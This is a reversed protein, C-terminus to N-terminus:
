NMSSIYSAVADIHEDTMNFAVDRMIGNIDNSREGTKFKKLQTILYEKHQWKLSPFNALKNGIGEIGHCGACGVVKDESKGYLYIKKGLEIKNIDNKVKSKQLTQKSFHEALEQIENDTVNQMMGLMTPDFRNGEKGKKYEFLQKVMYSKHQEALKPWAAVVSNGSVTHCTICRNLKSDQNSTEEAFTNSTFLVLITIFYLIKKFVSSNNM